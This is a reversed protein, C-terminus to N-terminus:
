GKEVTFSETNSLEEAIFGYAFAKAKERKIMVEIMNADEMIKIMGKATDSQFQCWIMFRDQEQPTLLTSKDNM